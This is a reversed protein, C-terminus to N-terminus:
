KTYKTRGGCQLYKADLLIEGGCDCRCHRVSYGSHKGSTAHDVTLHEIQYGIGIRPHVTKGSM